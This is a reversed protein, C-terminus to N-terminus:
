PGEPDHTADAVREVRLVEFIDAAILRFVGSMGQLSAIAEIRDRMEEFVPGDTEARLWRVHLRYGEYDRPDTVFILARKRAELNGATSRFFQRSLAVHREDVYTVKSVQIVHPRGDADVTTLGSPIIGDFCSVIDDLELTETM